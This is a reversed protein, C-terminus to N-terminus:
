RRIGFPSAGLLDGDLRAPQQTYGAGLSLSLNPAPQFEVGVQASYGSATSSRSDFASFPDGIGSNYKMTSFGGFITVPANQFNYGFKTGEYQFSGLGPLASQSFGNTRVGGGGRESGVFWGDPFNFRTFAFDGGRAEGSSFGVPRGFKDTAQDADANGGFGLPWNPLWYQVPAVQAHAAQGGLCLPALVVGLALIRLFSSMREM